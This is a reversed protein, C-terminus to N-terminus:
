CATENEVVKRLAQVITYNGTKCSNKIERMDGLQVLRNKYFKLIRYYKDGYKNLASMDARIFLIQKKIEYEHLGKIKRIEEVAKRNEKFQNYRRKDDNNNWYIKVELLKDNYQEILRLLLQYANERKKVIKTDVILNRTDKLLKIYCREAVILPLSHVFIKRSIGLLIMRKDIMDVQDLKGVEYTEFLSCQKILDKDEIEKMPIINTVYEELLDFIKDYAQEKEMPTLRESLKMSYHKLLAKYIREMEQLFVPVYDNYLKEKNGSKIINLDLNLLYQQKKYKYETEDNEKLHIVNYYKALAEKEFDSAMNMRAKKYITDIILQDISELYLSYSEEYKKEFLDKKDESVKIVNKYNKIVNSRKMGVLWNNIGTKTPTFIKSFTSGIKTFFTRKSDYVKLSKENAGM